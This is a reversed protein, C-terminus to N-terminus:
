IRSKERRRMMDWELNREWWWIGTLMNANHEALWLPDQRWASVRKAVLLPSPLALAPISPLTFPVYHDQTTTTSFKRKKEEFSFLLTPLIVFQGLFGKLQQLFGQSLNYPFTFLWQLWLLKFNWHKSGQIFNNGHYHDHWTKAALLNTVFSNYSNHLLFDHRSASHQPNQLNRHKDM